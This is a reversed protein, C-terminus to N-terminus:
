QAEEKNWITRILELKRGITRSCCGLMAAIEENSFGEWKWIAISRLRANGLRSLLYEIRENAVVELDPPPTPDAIHEVPINARLTIGSGPSPTARRQGGPRRKQREQEAVLRQAKRKTIKALLHWLDDRDHLKTYQGRAAGLFFGALALNVVDEEDAVCLHKGRLNARALGLLRRSYRAFLEQAAAADGKKVQYILNTV